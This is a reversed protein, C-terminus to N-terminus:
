LFIGTRTVRAKIVLLRQIVNVQNNIKLNCKRDSCQMAPSNNGDIYKLTNLIHSKSAQQTGREEQSQLGQVQHHTQHSDTSEEESLKLLYEHGVSKPGHQQKGNNQFSLSSGSQPARNTDSTVIIGRTIRISRLEACVSM